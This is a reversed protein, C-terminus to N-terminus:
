TVSGQHVFAQMNSITSFSLTTSPCLDQIDITFTSSAAAVLLYNDLTATITISLPSVTMETPDTSMLTLLDTSLSFFSHISPSISYTRPGCLTLGDGVGYTTSATDLALATQTVPGLNVFAQMNLIVPNFSLTTTDCPDNVQILIISSVSMNIGSGTSTELPITATITLSFINVDATSSTQIAFNQAVSDLSVFSSADPTSTM